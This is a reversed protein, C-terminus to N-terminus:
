GVTEGKFLLFSIDEILLIGKGHPSTEMVIEWILCRKLRRYSRNHEDKGEKSLVETIRLSVKIHFGHWRWSLMIVGGM